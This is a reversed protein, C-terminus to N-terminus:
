RRSAYEARPGTRPELRPRMLAEEARLLYEILEAGSVRGDLRGARESGLCAALLEWPVIADGGHTENRDEVSGLLDDLQRLSATRREREAFSKSVWALESVPRRRISVGLCEIAGQQSLPARDPRGLAQDGELAM